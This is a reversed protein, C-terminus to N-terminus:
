GSILNIKEKRKKNIKKENLYCLMGTPINFIIDFDSFDKLIHM